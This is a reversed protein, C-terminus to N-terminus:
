GKAAKYVLFPRETWWYTVRGWFAFDSNEDSLQRLHQRKKERKLRYCLQFVEIQPTPTPPIQQQNALESRYSATPLPCAKLYPASGTVAITCFQSM